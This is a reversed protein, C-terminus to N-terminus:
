ESDTRLSLRDDRSILESILQLRSSTCFVEARSCGSHAPSSTSKPSRKEEEVGVGGDEWWEKVRATESSVDMWRDLARASRVRLPIFTSIRLCRSGINSDIVFQLSSLLASSSPRDSFRNNASEIFRDLSPSFSSLCKSDIPASVIFSNYKTDSVSSSLSISVGDTTDCLSRPLIACSSCSASLNFLPAAPLVASDFPGPADFRKGREASRTTLCNIGSPLFLLLCNSGLPLAPGPRAALTDRLTFIDGDFFGSSVGRFGPM